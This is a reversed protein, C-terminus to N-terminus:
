IFREAASLYAPHIDIINIIVKINKKHKKIIQLEGEIVVYDGKDYLKIIDHIKRNNTRAYINAFYNRSHPFNINLEKLYKNKQDLTESMNLIRATILCLNM